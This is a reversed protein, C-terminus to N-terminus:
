FTFIKKLTNMCSIIRHWSIEAITVADWKPAPEKTISPVYGAVSTIMLSVVLVISLAKILKKSM